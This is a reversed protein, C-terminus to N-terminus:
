SRRSASARRLRPRGSLRPARPLVRNRATRDRSRALSGARRREPRSASRCRKPSACRWLATHAYPVAFAYDDLMRESLHAAPRGVGCLQAARGSAHHPRDARHRARRVRHRTSAAPRFFRRTLTNFFTKYLEQDLLPAILAAATTASGVGCRATTRVSACSTKSRRRSRPCASTTSSSASSRTTARRAWDRSEFRLRARRTIARFRANYDAFADRIDLAAGEALADPLFPDSGKNM